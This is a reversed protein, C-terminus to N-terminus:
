CQLTLNSSKMTNIENEDVTPTGIIESTSCGTMLRTRNPTSCCLPNFAPCGQHEGSIHNLGLVHGVEHALTWQSAIQAIAAGPRGIPHSACGNQGGPNAGATTIVSLVFYVVIENGRHNAAINNQNQFLQTQESSPAGSCAGVDLANLVNFTANGLVAATLDEWSIVEVRIGATSYVERMRDLMTRIAVNPATLVKIHLRNCRSFPCGPASIFQRLSLPFSLNCKQAVQRVSGPKQVIKGSDRLSTM